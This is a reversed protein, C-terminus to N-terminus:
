KTGYMIYDYFRNATTLVQSPSSSKDAYFRVAAKLAELRIEQRIAM